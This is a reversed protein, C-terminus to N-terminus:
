LLVIFFTLFINLTLLSDVLNRQEPTNLTLKSCIEGKELTEIILKTQAITQQTLLWNMGLSKFLQKSPDIILEDGPEQVFKTQTITQKTLLWNMGLSKFVAKILVPQTWFLKHLKKAINPHVLFSTTSSRNM